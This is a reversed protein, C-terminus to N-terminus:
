GAYPPQYTAPVTVTQVASVNGNSCTIFYTTPSASTSVSMSGATSNLNGAIGSGSISCSTANTSSWTIVGGNIETEVVKGSNYTTVTPSYSATVTVLTTVPQLPPLPTTSGKILPSLPAPANVGESMNILSNNEISTSSTSSAPTTPATTNQATEQNTNEQAKIQANQEDLKVQAQETTQGTASSNVIPSSITATTSATSSAISNVKNELETIQQELMATKTDTTNIPPTNEFWTFPNWWSAFAVSPIIFISLAVVSIIKKM